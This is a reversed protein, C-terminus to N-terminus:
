SHKNKHIPSQEAGFQAQCRHYLCLTTLIIITIFTFM